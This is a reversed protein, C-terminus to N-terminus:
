NMESDSMPMANKISACSFSPTSSAKHSHKGMHSYLAMHASYVEKRGAFVALINIILMLSVVIDAIDWAIVPALIAGVFVMTCHTCLFVTKCSKNKFIFGVSQVGYYGFSIIASFAFLGVSIAIIPKAADGFIGSFATMCGLVGGYPAEGTLLLAFATLTCMVVTDVFVEFVGFLGQRAPVKEASTSHAMPATGCGAENSFLGKVIGQRLAPTLICGFIGGVASDTKFANELIQRMVEPIREAQFIIVALACLVYGVSMIPVVVSSLRFLDLRLFFVIAALISLFVGSVIPSIGTACYIAESVASSQIIGGMVLSDIILLCVFIWAAISGIHKKIYIQAGGRYLMGLVIEAYKIAMAVFAGVWMWFVAGSSGISIAVAVGVINGVGVTGGLSLLMQGIGDKPISKITKVPHFFYFARLKIVFYSGIVLLMAASITLILEM